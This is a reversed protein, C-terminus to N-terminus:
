RVEEEPLGLILAEEAYLDSWGLVTMARVIGGRSIERGPSGFKKLMWDKLLQVSLLEDERTM